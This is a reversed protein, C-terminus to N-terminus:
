KLKSQSQILNSKINYLFYIKYANLESFINQFNKQIFQSMMSIYIIITIHAYKDTNM